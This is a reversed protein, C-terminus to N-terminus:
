AQLIAILKCDMNQMMFWIKTAKTSNHSLDRISNWFASIGSKRPNFELFIGTPQLQSDQISNSFTGTILSKLKFEM